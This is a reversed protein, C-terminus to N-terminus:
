YFYLNDIFVTGGSSEFLMQTIASKDTTFNSLLLDVSVWTGTTISSLNV